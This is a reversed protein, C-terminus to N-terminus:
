EEKQDFWSTIEEERPEGAKVRPKDGGTASGAKANRKRLGQFAQSSEKSVVKKSLGSLKPDVKLMRLLLGLKVKLPHNVPRNLELIDKDFETLLQEGLTYREASLYDYLENAAKNDPIPIGDFERAKAKENIIKILNSVYEQRTRAKDADDRAKKDVLLKINDEERKLVVKHAEEAENALESHDKLQKVKKDIGEPSLGAQRYFERVVKEQNDENTLDLSKFDQVAAYRSIYERPNVGKNIINDFIDRAEDGRSNLFNELIESATRRANTQFLELLEEPTSAEPIVENGQEDQDPLFIGQNVMEETISSYINTEEEEENTETSQAQAQATPKVEQSKPKKNKDVVIADEQEEEETEDDKKKGSLANLIDDDTVEKKPPTKIEPNKDTNKPDTTKQQPSTKAPVKPPVKIAKDPDDQDEETIVELDEFNGNLFNEGTQIIRETKTIGLDGLEGVKFSLNSREENEGAM